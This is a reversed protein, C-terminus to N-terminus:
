FVNFSSTVTSIYAKESVLSVILKSICVLGPYKVDRLSIRALMKLADQALRILFRMKDIANKQKKENIGKM